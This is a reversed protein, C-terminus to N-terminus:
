FSAKSDPLALMKTIEGVLEVEFSREDRPKIVVEQILDRIIAFAEDRISPESLAKTLDEVKQRYVDALKPHFRVSSPPPADMETRLGAKRRELEALKEQLTDSRYGDAMAEILTDLKKTVKGLERETRVRMASQDAASANIEEHYARIFQNPEMLRDKSM